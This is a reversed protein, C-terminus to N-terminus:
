LAALALSYFKSRASDGRSSLVVPVKAGVLLGAIDAGAFLTITKYFTNGAEIDPFIIADAHGGIPSHLGKHALAEADLSTKVDLPGDVVCNGLKGEEAEAKLTVYDATFPFHREDVKESCHTLAILAKERGLRCAIDTLYKIQARRQDITPYPIVAVDSLLLLKPYAPIHAATIHTLVAGKDLIGHEKNLVARLLNDTNIMGKMIIDAEGNRAMSVAIAAAEDGDAAEVISYHGSCAAMAPDAEIEARCGVFIADIIGDKIALAVAQRTCDDSAWVIAAKKRIGRESITKVLSDLTEM